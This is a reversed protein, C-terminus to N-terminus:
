KAKDLVETCAVWVYRGPGNEKIIDSLWKPQSTTIFNDGSYVLKDGPFLRYDYIEKGQLHTVLGDVDQAIRTGLSKGEKILELLGATDGQELFRGTSNIIKTNDKAMTIVTNPPVTLKKPNLESRAGHGAIVKASLGWPDIWVNPNHVYANPRLGGALGIPDPSIYQAALPDYYRYRNYYLGNEANEWQGQFRM